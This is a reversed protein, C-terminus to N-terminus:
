CQRSIQLAVRRLFSMDTQIGGLATWLHSCRAVRVKGLWVGNSCTNVAVLGFMSNQNNQTLLRTKPVLFTATYAAYKRKRIFGTRRMSTPRREGRQDEGPRAGKKPLGPWQTYKQVMGAPPRKLGRRM